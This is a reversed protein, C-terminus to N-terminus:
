TRRLVRQPNQASGSLSSHIVTCTYRIAEPTRNNFSLRYRRGLKLVKPEDRDSNVHGNISWREMGQGDPPVRLIRMPIVEDPKPSERSLGFRLYDWPLGGPTARQPDGHRSAYEVRVGLGSRRVDDALSGLIWVGPTKMDVFADVREGVGLELVSVLGPRPVPNGDLAIVYFLHGPLYLQVNETASANLVHFLVRQREKV